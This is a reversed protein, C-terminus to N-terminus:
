VATLLFSNSIYAVVLIFKLSVTSLSFFWVCFAVTPNWTHLLLYCLLLSLFCILPPQANPIHPPPHPYWPYCLSDTTISLLAGQNHHCNNLAVCTVFQVSSCVYCLRVCIYSASHVTGMDIEQKQATIAYPNQCPSLLKPTCLIGTVEQLDIM